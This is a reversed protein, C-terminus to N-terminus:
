AARSAQYQLIRGGDDGHTIVVGINVSVTPRDPYAFDASLYGVVLGETPSRTELIRYTVTMGRPQSAYYDIVGQRGVSYPRLGQFVADAAFVDAVREPKEADIGAKWRDMVDRLVETGQVKVV